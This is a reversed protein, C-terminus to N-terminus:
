AADEAERARRILEDPHADMQDRRFALYTGVAVAIRLPESDGDPDIIGHAEALQEEVDTDTTVPEDRDEFRTMLETVRDDAGAPDAVEGARRVVEALTAIHPETPM